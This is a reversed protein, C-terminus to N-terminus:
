KASTRKGGTIIGFLGVTTRVARKGAEAVSAQRKDAMRRKAAADESELLTSRNKLYRQKEVEYRSPALGTPENFTNRHPNLTHFDFDQM